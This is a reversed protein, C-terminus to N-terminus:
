KVFSKGPLKPRNHSGLRYIRESSYRKFSRKLARTRYIAM